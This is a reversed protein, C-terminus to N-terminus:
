SSIKRGKWLPNRFISLLVILPVIILYVFELLIVNGQNTELDNLRAMKSLLKFDVYSKILIVLAFLSFSFPSILTTILLLVLALQVGLMYTGFLFSKSNSLFRMKKAWRIRQDILDIWSNEGKTRVWLGKWSSVFVKKNRKKFAELLFMDDGSSVKKNQQFPEISLFDSKRYMLNAGSALLANKKWNFFGQNFAITSLSDYYQFRNLLGNRNKVFVPMVFLDFDSNRILNNCEKLWNKDYECDADSILVWTNNALFVGKKVAEKKGTSISNVLHWNTNLNVEELLHKFDDDSHDNVFIVEYEDRNYNIEKLSKISSILNEAENRFPIIITIKNVERSVKQISQEPIYKRVQNILWIYHIFLLGIIVLLLTM